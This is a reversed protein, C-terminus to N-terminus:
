YDQQTNPFLALSQYTLRSEFELLWKKREIGAGYGIMDGNTGIVRHCPIIIAIRNKGNANAIPRISSPMGMLVAQQKYTLTKGFQISQLFAWVNQQLETGPTHLAVSFTTREGSFYEIIEKQVQVIHHNSGEVIKTNLLRRLDSFEKEIYHRNTFELLCIGENTACVVMKGLPTCFESTLINEPSMM